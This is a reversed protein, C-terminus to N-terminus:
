RRICYLRHIRFEPDLCSIVWALFLNLVKMNQLAPHEREIATAQFDKMSALNQTMLYRSGSGYEGFLRSGSGSEIFISRCCTM